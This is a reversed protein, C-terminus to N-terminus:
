VNEARPDAIARPQIMDDNAVDIGGDKFDRSILQVSVVYFVNAVYLYIEDVKQPFYKSSTSRVCSVPFVNVFQAARPSANCCWVHHFRDM